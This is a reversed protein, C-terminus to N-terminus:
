DEIKEKLLDEMIPITRGQLNTVMLARYLSIFWDQNDLNEPNMNRPGALYIYMASFTFEETLIKNISMHQLDKVPTNELIEILYDETFDLIEQRNEKISDLINSYQEKNDLDKSKVEENINELDGTIQKYWQHALIDPHAEYRQRRDNSARPQIVNNKELGKLYNTVTQKNTQLETALATIYDAKGNYILKFILIGMPESYARERYDVSNM